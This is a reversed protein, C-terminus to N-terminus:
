SERSRWSMQGNAQSRVATPLSVLFPKCTEFAQAQGSAGTQVALYMGATLNEYSAGGDKETRARANPANLDVMAALQEAYQRNQSATM